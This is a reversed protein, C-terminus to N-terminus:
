KRCAEKMQRIDESTIERHTYRAKEYIDAMGPASLMAAWERATYGELHENKEAVAFLGKASLVRRRYLRRVRQSPTLFDFFGDSRKRTSRVTDCKERVDYVALAEQKTQRSRNQSFRNRLFLILRIIGKYLLFLLFVLMAVTSLAMLVDWFWFSEGPEPLAIGSGGTNEEVIPIFDEDAGQPFLSVLFRIIQRVINKLFALIAALWEVNATVFLVLVGGLTSAFVMGMGSRFMEKEPLYGTSSANVTLFDLYKDLYYSIFYIGLVLILATVYYFDWSDLGQYHQLFLAAASLVIAAVPPFGTDYGNSRQTLRLSVSHLLYGAGCLVAIVRSVTNQAPLLFSIGATVLHLTLFPVFHRTKERIIFFLIPFLGCLIWLLMDPKQAGTLQQMLGMVTIAVPFLTWHNMQTVLLEDIIVIQEHKM